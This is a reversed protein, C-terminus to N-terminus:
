TNMTKKLTEALSQLDNARDKLEETAAATEESSASTSQSSSTIEEIASYIVMFTEPIERIKKVQGRVMEGLNEVALKSETAINRIERLEEQARHSSSLEQDSVKQIGEVNAVVKGIVGEIYSIIGNISGSWEEINRSFKSLEDAIVGFSRGQVGARAAEITTNLALLRIQKSIRDMVINIEKIEKSSRSLEAVTVSVDRIMENIGALNGLSKEIGSLTNNIRDMSINVNQGVMNAHFNVEESTDVIRLMVEQASGTQALVEEVNQSVINTNIAIQNITEGVQEFAVAFSGATSNLQGAAEQSQRFVKDLREMLRNREEADVLSSFIGYIRRVMIILLFTIVICLFALTILLDDPKNAREFIPSLRAVLIASFLSAGAVIPTLRKDFYLCSVITPILWTLQMSVDNGYNINALSINILLFALIIYKLKTVFLAKKIFYKLIFIVSVLITFNAIFNIPPVQLIGGLALAFGLPFQMFALVFLAKIMFQNSSKENEVIIKKEEMPKGRKKKLL